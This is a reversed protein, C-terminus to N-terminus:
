ALLLDAPDITFYGVKKDNDYGVCILFGGTTDDLNVTMDGTTGNVDMDYQTGLDTVALSQKTATSLFPIELIAGNVPRILVLANQTAQTELAVGLITQGSHAAAVPTAGSSSKVLQGAKVGGSAAFWKYLNVPAPNQVKIM